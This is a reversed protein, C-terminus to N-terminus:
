VRNVERFPVERASMFLHEGRVNGREVATWISNVTVCVEQPNLSCGILGDGSNGFSPKFLSVERQGFARQELIGLQDGFCGATRRAFVHLLQTLCAPTLILDSLSNVYDCHEGKEVADRVGKPHGGLVIQLGAPQSRLVTARLKALCNHWKPV